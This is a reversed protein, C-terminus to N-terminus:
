WKKAPAMPLLRRIVTAVSSRIQKGSITLETLFRDFAAGGRGMPAALLRIERWLMDRGRITQLSHAGGVEYNAIVRDLEFPPTRLAMQMMLFQDAAVGVKLNYYGFCRALNADLIAGQHPIWMTGRLFKRMSFPRMSMVRLASGGLTRVVDGYAWSWNNKKYSHIVDSLVANDVFSDGANMFILLEGTALNCAKNMADYIGGDAESVYIYNDGAVIRTDLWNATLDGSAGDVVVHQYQQYTQSELSETTRRLGTLDQYCVTVVTIECKFRARDGIRFVRRESRGNVASGSPENM